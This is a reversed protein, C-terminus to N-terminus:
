IAYVVDYKGSGKAKMLGPHKILWLRFAAPSVEYHGKRLMKLPCDTWDRLWGQLIATPIDGLAKSITGLSGSVTDTGAEAELRTREFYTSVDHPRLDKISKGRERAWTEIESINGRLIGGKKVVPCGYYLRWQQINHFSQKTVKSIEDIGNLDYGEM